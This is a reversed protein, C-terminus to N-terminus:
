QFEVSTSQVGFKCEFGDSGPGTHWGGTYDTQTSCAVHLRWMQETAAAGSGACKTGGYTNFWENVCKLGNMSQDTRGSKAVGNEALASPSAGLLIAAAVGAAFVTRVAKSM